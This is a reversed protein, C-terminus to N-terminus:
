LMYFKGHVTIIYLMLVFKTISSVVINPMRGRGFGDWGIINITANKPFHM